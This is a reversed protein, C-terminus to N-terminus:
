GGAVEKLLAGVAKADAQGGTAQMVRGMFFGQLAKKGGRFAEAEAPHAALVEEVVRRLEGADSVVKLGEREVTAAPAEGTQAARALVDRAIRSSIAGSSLLDALAPLDAANLRNAGGRLAGALDNVVWAAVQAAHAGAGAQGFFEGLQPDRALAIADEEGVGLGRLREMEAREEPSFEPAKAEAPAAEAKPKRPEPRQAAGGAQQGKAWSDRLTMIRGFVL